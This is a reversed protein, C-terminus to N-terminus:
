ECKCIFLNSIFFGTFTSPCSQWGGWASNAKSWNASLSASIGQLSLEAPPCICTVKLPRYFLDSFPLQTVQKKQRPTDSHTWHLPLETDPMPFSRHTHTQFTTVFYGSHIRLYTIGRPSGTLTKLILNGKLFGIGIFLCVALSASASQVWYVQLGCILSFIRNAHMLPLTVIKEETKGENWTKNAM